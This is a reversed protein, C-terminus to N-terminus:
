ITMNKLLHDIIHKTKINEKQKNLNCYAMSQKDVFHSRAVVWVTGGDTCSILKQEYLRKILAFLDAKAGTWKIIFAKPEGSFLQYFDDPNTDEAIWQLQILAQFLNTIKERGKEDEKYKYNFVADVIKGTQTPRKRGDKKPTTTTPNVVIGKGDAEVNEVKNNIQKEVYTDTQITVHQSARPALETLRSQLQEKITFWEEDYVCFLLEMLMEYVTRFDDYNKIRKMCYNAISKLNLRDDPKDSKLPTSDIYASITAGIIGTGIIGQALAIAVGETIVQRLGAKNQKCKLSGVTPKPNFLRRAGIGYLDKMYDAVPITRESKGLKNYVKELVTELEKASLSSRTREVEDKLTQEPHVSHIVGSYMMDEAQQIRARSGMVGFKPM